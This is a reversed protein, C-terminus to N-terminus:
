QHESLSSSSSSLVFSARREGDSDCRRWRAAVEGNLREEERMDDCRPKPRAGMGDDSVDVSEGPSEDAKGLRLRLARVEGLFLPSYKDGTVGLDM